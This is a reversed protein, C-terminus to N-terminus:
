AVIRYTDRLEIAVFGLLSASYADLTKGSKLVSEVQAFCGAWTM